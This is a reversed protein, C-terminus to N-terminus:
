EKQERAKSHWLARRLTHTVLAPRVPPTVFAGGSRLDSKPPEHSVCGM